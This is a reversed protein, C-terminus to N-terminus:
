RVRKAQERPRQIPTQRENPDPADLVAQRRQRLDLRAGASHLKVRGHHKLPRAQNRAYEIFEVAQQHGFAEIM